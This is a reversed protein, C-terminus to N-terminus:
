DTQTSQNMKSFRRDYSKIYHGSQPAPASSRPFHTLRYPLTPNISPPTRSFWDNHYGSRVPLTASVPYFARGYNDMRMKRTWCRGFDTQTSRSMRLFRGDYPRIYHGRRLALASPRSLDSLRYPVRPNITPPADSLWNNRFFGPAPLTAPVPHFIRGDNDVWMKHKWGGGFAIDDDFEFYPPTAPPRLFKFGAYKRQQGSQLEPVEYVQVNSVSM